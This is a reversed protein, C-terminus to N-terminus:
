IVVRLVYGRQNPHIVWDQIDWTPGMQERGYSAVKAKLDALPMPTRATERILKKHAQCTRTDSAGIWKYVWEGEPDRERYGIERGMNRVRNTETRAIRRLQYRREDVVKGMERALKRMDVAQPTVFAREVIRGIDEGMEGSMDTFTRWVPSDQTIARVANMDLGLKTPDVDAEAIGKLLAAAMDTEAGSAMKEVAYGVIRNILQQQAEPSVYQELNDTVHKLMEELQEMMEQYFAREGAVAKAYMDLSKGMPEEDETLREGQGYGEYGDYQRGMGTGMGMGGMGAGMLSFDPMDEIVYELNTEDLIRVKGENGEILMIQQLNAARLMTAAAKDMESPAPFKLCYDTVGWAREIPPYVEDHFKQQHTETTRLGVPVQVGENNLGGSSSTDAMFIPMVGYMSWLRVYIDKRQAINELEQMTPTLNLVQAGGGETKKEVGMMPVYNPNVKREEDIKRMQEQLGDPNDTNFAVIMKPPRDNAYTFYQETDMATITLLPTWLTMIPSFGYAESPCYYSWHIVEGAIYGKTPQSHEDLGVADCPLLPRGCDRCRKEGDQYIEDRHLVCTFFGRLKGQDDRMYGTRRFAEDRILMIRGPLGRILELPKEEVIKGERTVKYDKIILLFSDDFTNIDDECLEMVFKFSQDSENCRELLKKLILEQKRDPERTEAGCIECEETDTEYDMDCAECRRSFAPEYEIGERFIEQKLTKIVDAITPHYRRAM